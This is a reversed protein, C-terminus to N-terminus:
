SRGRGPAGGPVEPLEEGETQSIDFVHAVTFGSVYTSSTEEGTIEDLETRRRCCPAAPTLSGLPGGPTGFFWAGPLHSMFRSGGLIAGLVIASSAALGPDLAPRLLSIPRDCALKEGGRRDSIDGDSFRVVSRMPM